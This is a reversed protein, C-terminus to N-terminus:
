RAFIINLYYDWMTTHEVIQLSFSLPANSSSAYPRIIESFVSIYFL